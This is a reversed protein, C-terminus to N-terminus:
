ACAWGNAGFAVGGPIAGNELYPGLNDAQHDSVAGNHAASYAAEATTMIRVNATCASTKADQNFTGTAFLVITALIGLIIMVILLEILTFGEDGRKLVRGHLRNLMIDERESHVTPRQHLTMLQPGRQTDSSRM